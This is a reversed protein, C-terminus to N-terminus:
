GLTFPAPDVSRILIRFHARGRVQRELYIIVNFDVYEELVVMTGVYMHPTYGATTVIIVLINVQNQTHQSAPSRVSVASFPFYAPM